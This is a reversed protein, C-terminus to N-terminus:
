KSEQLTITIKGTSGDKSRYYELEISDGAKHGELIDFFEAFNTVTKGDAGTIIDYVKLETNDCPGNKDIGYVAIGSPTNGSGKANEGTIGIKVRGDVYGLKMIDDIVDKVTASPIAFGMGEYDTAAIKASAVGIVQGYMNVLAGGSNGPNIAADTQLFKVNTTSSIQRDVASVIGKTISNNYKLGGPNGIAIVSEGLAVDKSNGFSVAKLGSADDMKLLALDTRTDYGVVGAKYQRGDSTVVEILYDTKSNGIVHSNTIVYGDSTIIIGSGQSSCQASSTVEDSYCLVGVISDTVENSAYETNYKSDGSDSPKAKLDVGEYSPNTKSSYDSESHKPTDSNGKNYPSDDPLTFTYSNGSGSNDGANSAIYAVIGCISGVCLLALVVIIVIIGPTIKKRPMNPMPPQAYTNSYDVAPKPPQAYQRYPPQNFGQNPQYNPQGYQQYQPQYQQRYQPQGYQPYQPQYQQYPPRRDPQPSGYPYQPQQPYFPQQYPQNYQPNYQQNHPQNYQPNFNQNYYGNNAGNQYSGDPRHQEYDPTQPTFGNQQPPSQNFGNEFPKEPEFSETQPTNQAEAVPEDAACCSSETNFDPAPQPESPKETFPKEPEFRNNSNFNNEM